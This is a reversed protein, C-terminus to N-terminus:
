RQCWAEGWTGARTSWCRPCPCAGHHSELPRHVAEEAVQLIVAGFEGAELRAIYSCVCPALTCDACRAPTM